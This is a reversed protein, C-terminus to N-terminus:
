AAANRDSKNGQTLVADDLIIRAAQVEELLRSLPPLEADWEILTPVAGIKQVAFRYLEWVPDCVPQDHTDVLISEGDFDRKIHGALHFEGVAEGHIGAIYEYPDFNHNESQVYINNIDLLLGCGSKRSLANMFEYESMDNDKFAIYTSPNEVLIRRGLATQVQDVNRCLRDLVEYTYPLPLLDNLHANGSASWSAHDSVQFPEYIDALEKIQQLHDQNVPQDSGLSLGVAHFSLAYDQRAETLYHRHAGGGFYNEPHVEIWGLDPRTTLFDKYHSSRLGMGAPHDPTKPSLPQAQEKTM